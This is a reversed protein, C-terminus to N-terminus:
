FNRFFSSLCSSTRRPWRRPTDTYPSSAPCWPALLHWRGEHRRHSAWPRSQALDHWTTPDSLSLSLLRGSQTKGPRMLSALCAHGTIVRHVGQKQRVCLQHQQSSAHPQMQLRSAQEVLGGLQAGAAARSPQTVHTCMCLIPLHCPRQVSLLLPRPRSITPWFSSPPLSSNEKKM